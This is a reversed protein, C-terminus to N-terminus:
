IVRKEVDNISNIVKKDDNLKEILIQKQFALRKWHNFYKRKQWYQLIGNRYIYYLCSEKM